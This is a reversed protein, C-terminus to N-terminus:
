ATEISWSAFQVDNKAFLGGEEKKSKSRIWAGVSKFCLNEEIRMFEANSSTSDLNNRVFVQTKKSFRHIEGMLAQM